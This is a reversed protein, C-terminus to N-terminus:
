PTESRHDAIASKEVAKARISAGVLMAPGTLAVLAVRMWVPTLEAGEGITFGRILAATVVLAAVGGHLLEGHAAVKATVYGALLAVLTDSVLKGGLVAPRNRVEILAATDSVSGGAAAAILMAELLQTMVNVLAVGALVAIISRIPNM